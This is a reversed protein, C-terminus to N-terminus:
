GCRFADRVWTLRARHDPPGDFGIVDFRIRAARWRRDRMLFWATTRAIRRRKAATVSQLSGGFDARGRQRVEVIVLTGRDECILDIEGLRCRFNRAIVTLGESALFLAALREAAAGSAARPSPQGSAGHM